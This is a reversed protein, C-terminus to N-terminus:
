QDDKDRYAAQQYRIAAESPTQELERLRSALDNAIRRWEQLEEWYSPVWTTSHAKDIRQRYEDINM